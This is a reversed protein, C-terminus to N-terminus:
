GSRRFKQFAIRNTDINEDTPQEGEEGRGERERGKREEGRGKAGVCNYISVAHVKITVPPKRKVEPLEIKGYFFGLM